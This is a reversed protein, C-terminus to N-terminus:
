LRNAAFGMDLPAARRRAQQAAALLDSSDALPADVRLGEVHRGVAIEGPLLDLAQPGADVGRHDLDTAVGILVEGRLGEFLNEVGNPAAFGRFGARLVAPLERSRE